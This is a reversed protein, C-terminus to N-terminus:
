AETVKIAAKHAEFREYFEPPMQVYREKDYSEPNVVQVKVAEKLVVFDGIRAMEGPRPYFHGTANSSRVEEIHLEGIFTGTKDSMKRQQFLGFKSKLTVGRSTGICVSVMQRVPDTEIVYGQQNYLITRENVLSLNTFLVVGGIVLLLAAIGQFIAPSVDEPSFGLDAPGLFLLLIPFVMLLVQYGGYKWTRDNDDLSMHGAGWFFLSAMASHLPNVFPKLNRMLRKVIARSEEVDLIPPLSDEVVNAVDEEETPMHEDAESKRLGELAVANGSDIALMDSYSQAAQGSMGLGEYTLALQHHYHVNQPDFTIARKFEKIANYLFNKQYQVQGLLFYVESAKHAKHCLDTAIATALDYNKSQYAAAAKKFDNLYEPYDNISQRSQGLAQPNSKFVELDFLLDETCQYREDASYALLKLVISDLEMPIGAFLQSPPAIQCTLQITTVEQHSNGELARKGTLLEYFVLGLAYLDSREDVEKGQNQEPSSYMFTGVIDGTATQVIADDAYAVGFDVIKPIRGIDTLMINSPKIDRHIVGKSHAHGLGSTCYEMISLTEQVSFRKQTELMIGLDNGRIHELVIYHIGDLVGSDIYGVVNPHNLKALVNVERLFRQVYVDDNSYEEFLTKIAVLAVAESDFGVFVGGMGGHGLEKLLQYHGVHDGPRM